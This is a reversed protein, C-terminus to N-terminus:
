RMTGRFARETEQEIVETWSEPLEGRSPLIPRAPGKGQPGSWGTQHPGAPHDITVGVGAGALPRVRLSDRMASTDTLPPAGRGRATTVPSLPRWPTEYPDIGRSFEEQMLEELRAATAKAARSPVTALEALREQMRELAAFNGTISV